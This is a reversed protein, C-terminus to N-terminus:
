TIYSILDLGSNEQLSGLDKKTPTGTAISTWLDMRDVNFYSGDVETPTNIM